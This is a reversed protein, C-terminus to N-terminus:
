SREPAILSVTLLTSLILVSLWWTQWIGFSLFWIPAATALTAVAAARGAADAQLETRMAALGFLAAFSIAGPLGLELWVQLAGNHPHLPLRNGQGVIMGSRDRLYYHADGDPVTRSANFGWGLVPREAIKTITFAWIDLRHLFSANHSSSSSRIAAPDLAPAVRPVYPAVIIGFAVTAALFLTAGRRALLSAFFFLVGSIFAISASASPLIYATVFGLGLLSLAVHPWSRWLIGVAPWILLFLFSPTLNFMALIAGNIPTKGLLHQSIAADTVMEFLLFLLGLGIGALVFRRLAHREHEAMPPALMLAAVALLGFAVVAACKSIADTANITWLLSLVSWGLIFCIIVVLTRDSRMGSEREFARLVLLGIMAFLTLPTVLMPAFVGTTPALLAAVGLVHGSHIRNQAMDHFSETENADPATAGKAM